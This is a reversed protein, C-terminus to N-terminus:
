QQPNVAPVSGKNANAMSGKIVERGAGGLQQIAQPGFQQLMQQQQAAQESAQVEQETPILGETDIGYAAAARSILELPKIYRIAIEPTLTTIIDTVFRKLNAQDHGRGIAQLGTVIVPHVMGKPMTKAGLRKEMRREFLRVAPLQFDAAFLTYVGGLADDLESAMYRIEEATVRDANRQISSHLLFAYSLRTAITEAQEKAVRLDAQKEVQMVTVDQARGSKVDGNKATAVVQISTTGAPDVLFLIRASAASGEVLTESLAELSDLDGLYEEVYSRGYNETPQTAFRLFLFPLEDKKYSGESGEVRVDEADQYVQWMGKEDLLIHTYIDVPAEELKHGETIDKFKEMGMLAQKIEDPVSAFDMTEKIIAELLNGSADRRTVYQDLRFVQCRDQQKPPITVCANGTILLHILTMVSAPRFVSTDLEMTVARERSALGKEIEGRQTGLKEVTDDDLRYNFFPIGPFLSLGFKSALTRVGRAGLSQYPTPLQSSAGFGQPPM